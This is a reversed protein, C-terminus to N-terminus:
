VGLAEVRARLDARYAESRYDLPPNNHHADHAARLQELRLLAILHALM